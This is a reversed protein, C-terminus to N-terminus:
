PSAEGAPWHQLMVFREFNCRSAGCVVRPYIAGDAEIRFDTLNIEHGNPCTMVASDETQSRYPRWHLWLMEGNSVRSGDKARWVNVQAHNPSWQGGM